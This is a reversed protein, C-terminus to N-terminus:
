IQGHYFSISLCPFLKVCGHGSCMSQSMREGGHREQKISTRCCYCVFQMKFWIRVFACPLVITTIIATTGEFSWSCPNICVMGPICICVRADKKARELNVPGEQERNAQGLFLIFICALFSMATYLVYCTHDYLINSYIRWTAWRVTLLSVLLRKFHGSTESIVAKELGQKHDTTICWNVPMCAVATFVNHLGIWAGQQSLFHM